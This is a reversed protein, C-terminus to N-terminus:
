SNELVMKVRPCLIGDVTEKRSKVNRGDVTAHVYKARLKKEDLEDQDILSDTVEDSRSAALTLLRYTGFTM